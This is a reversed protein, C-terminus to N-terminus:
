KLLKILKGTILYFVPFFIITILMKIALLIVDQRQDVLYLWLIKTSYLVTTILWSFIIHFNRYKMNGKLVSSSIFIYAVLISSHMLIADTFFVMDVLIVCVVVVLLSPPNLFGFSLVISLMSNPIYASLIGLGCVILELLSVISLILIFLINNKFKSTNSLRVGLM